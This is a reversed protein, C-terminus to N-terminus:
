RLYAETVAAVAEYYSNVFESRQGPTAAEWSRAIPNGAGAIVLGLRECFLERMHEDSQDWARDLPGDNDESSLDLGGPFGDEEHHEDPQGTVFADAIRQKKKAPDISTTVTEVDGAQELQERVKAIHPHSAGVIEPAKAAKHGWITQSIALAETDDFVFGAEYKSGARMLFQATRASDFGLADANNAIWPLWEGRPVSKKKAALKQGAEILYSVGKRYLKGIAVADSDAKPLITINTDTTQV